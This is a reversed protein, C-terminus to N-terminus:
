SVDQPEVWQKELLRPQCESRQQLVHLSPQLGSAHGCKLGKQHLGPVEQGASPLHAPALPTTDTLEQDVLELVGVVNLAVENPHQRQLPIGALAGPEKHDAVGLLRDVAPSVGVERCILLEDTLRESGPSDTARQIAIESRRRRDKFLDLSRHLRNHGSLGTQLGM